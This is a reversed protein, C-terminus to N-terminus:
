FRIRAEAGFTRPEGFQTITELVLNINSAVYTKDTLNRAWLALELSNGGGLSIDTLALRGDLLGYAPRRTLPDGTIAGIQSSRWSYNVSTEFKGFGLEARHVAGLQYNWKPTLPIVYTNTVNTGDPLVFDTYRARVYGGGFTFQLNRTPTISGDIEFGTFKAEGANIINTTILQPVFVGAQFDRYISHYVAGNLRIVNAPDAFKFGAEYSTLKEPNYPALFAANTAATDNVGGSKFGTAYRGYISFNPALKYLANFEPNFRKSV